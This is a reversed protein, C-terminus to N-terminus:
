WESSRDAYIDANRKFMVKLDKLTRKTLNKVPVYSDTEDDYEEDTGDLWSQIDKDDWTEIISEGGKEYNKM